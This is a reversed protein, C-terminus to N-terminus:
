GDLLLCGFLCSFHFYLLFPDCQSRELYLPSLKTYGLFMHRFLVAQINQMVQGAALYQFKTEIWCLRLCLSAPKTWFCKLAPDLHEASESFLFVNDEYDLDTFTTTGIVIGSSCSVWDLRTSFFPYLRGLCWKHYHVMKVTGLRGQGHSWVLTMYQYCCLIQPTLIMCVRGLPM